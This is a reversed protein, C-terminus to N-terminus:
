FELDLISYPAKMLFTKIGLSQASVLHQESDDIFLTEEPVLGNEELVREFISLNPKRDWMLHSYYAKEFFGDLNEKNHEEQLYADFFRKHISNTNSLLFTRKKRKLDTLFELRESPIDLILANWASDIESDEAAIGFLKNLESRFEEEEIKGMEIADFVPNQKQQTYLLAANKGSLKTFADITSQYNLNLIVGGLDFIVNNISSWDTVQKEM